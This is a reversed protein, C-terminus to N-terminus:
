IKKLEKKAELLINREARNKTLNLTPQTVGLLDAAEKEMLERQGYVLEMVQIQRPRRLIQLHIGLQVVWQFLTRREPLPLHHGNAIEVCSQLVWKRQEERSLEVKPSHQSALAYQELIFQKPKASSSNDANVYKERKWIRKVRSEVKIRILTLLKGRDRSYKPIFETIIDEYLQEELEERTMITVDNWLERVVRKILPRFYSKFRILESNAIAENRKIKWAIELAESDTLVPEIPQPLTGSPVETLDEIRRLTFIQFPKKLNSGYRQKVYGLAVKESPATVFEDVVIGHFTTGQVKYDPM